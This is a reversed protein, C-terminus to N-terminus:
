IYLTLPVLVVAPLIYVACTAVARRVTIEEPRDRWYEGLCFGLGLVFALMFGPLIMGFGILVGIGAKAVLDCIAWGILIALGACAFMFFKPVVLSDERDRYASVLAGVLICGGMGALKAITVEASLGVVLAVMAVVALSGFFWMMEKKM